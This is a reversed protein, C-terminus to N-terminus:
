GKFVNPILLWSSSSNLERKTEIYPILIHKLFAISTEENLGIILPRLLM